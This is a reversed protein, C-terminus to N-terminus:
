DIKMGYQKILKSWRDSERQMLEGFEKPGAGVPETMGASLKEAVDKEKLAASAAAHIKQIAADPTGKPVTLGMWSSFEYGSVGSEAVTPVDPLAKSRKKGTVALAKLKGAKVHPLAALPFAVVTSIEGGLLAVIAPAGGKYPVHTIDVKAMSKLMEGALHNASGNGATGYTYKGPERKALELFERLNKAPVSPHAVIVLDISTLWTVPAFCDVKYGPNPYLSPNLAMTGQNVFTVTYGDPAAKGGLATGINGGAGARNDIIVSRGLVEQMKTQISRCVVDADGGAPQPVILTVPKSPFKDQSFSRGAFSLPLAVAGAQLLARRSLHSM